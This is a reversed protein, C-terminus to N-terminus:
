HQYHEEECNADTNNALVVLSLAPRVYVVADHITLSLLTYVVRDRFINTLSILRPMSWKTRRTILKTEKVTTCKIVELHSCRTVQFIRITQDLRHVVFFAALDVSPSM